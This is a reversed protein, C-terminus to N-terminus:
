WYCANEVNESKNPKEEISPRVWYDNMYSSIDYGKNLNPNEWRRGRIGFLLQLAGGLHIAKKGQRKAHAALPFGYAGCGILCIEYDSEDMKDKMWQLAEFWNQFESNDGGLSQIAKLVTIKKFTPLVNPNNFLKEKKNYQKIITEAFPHVVLVKKGELIRSWPNEALFPILFDLWVYKSCSTLYNALLSEQRLWSGLLDVEKIDDLMLRGFRQMNEPTIPFFGANNQMNFMINENWWWEPQKGKIFKLISHSNCNIGLYNIVANLENAGFRAIMCPKEDLLLNYIIESAKNPDVVRELLPYKCKGYVKEYVKRLSKLIFIPITNM